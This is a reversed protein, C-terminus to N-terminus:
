TLVRFTLFQPLFPLIHVNLIYVDLILHIIKDAVVTYM